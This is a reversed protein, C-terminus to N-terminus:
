GALRYRQEECIVMGLDQLADLVSQVSQVPSRKYRNAVEEITQQGASLAMRVAAVQERMQKPWAQKNTSIPSPAIADDGTEELEAEQQVPAHHASPNQYEPRLWRVHGKAEEAAREANLAVLRRLLEEEAEAQAESKDPLPTTAGPLGVLKDALDDWGYASFVARDLEDHLERLVSVLGQEHITKDKSSLVEGSRLKELVNYMGTLTLDTHQAQQRKRHADLQNGFDCIKQALGVLQSIDPFPFAEFCSTKNYVPDNGVGLRSGTVLAWAVHVRSSLIGLWGADETAIAILKDDPLVAADLFIFTRHKSTQVTAVYRHLGSVAARLKPQNEGFLWWNDRRSPRPNLDRDPKVRELLWQYVAPFHQRVQEADLGHMDIVRVNRPTQMLDRGNRYPRLRTELGIVTGLGLSQAQEETITMGEGHPIVGRNSIVRNARLVKASVVNAGVKLDAFLRGKIEQLKVDVEDQATAWEERVQLLRGESESLGAVTM